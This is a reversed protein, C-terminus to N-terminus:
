SVGPLRVVSLWFEGVTRIVNLFEDVDVPKSIFCNARVDYSKLIDRGSESSTVIVVPIRGVEQHNRIETLVEFGNKNPLNLDLLILDPRPSDEFGPLRNLFSMAAEGDTAVSIRNLGQGHQLAELILEVDGPNDEILLIEAPKTQMSLEMGISGGHREVVTKCVASGCAATPFVREANRPEMGISYHQVSCQWEEGSDKASVQIKPNEKSSFNVADALLIQFLRIIQTIARAFSRCYV